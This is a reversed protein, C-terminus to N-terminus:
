PHCRFAALTKGGDGARRWADTAAVSNAERRWRKGKQEGSANTGTIALPVAQTEESICRRSRRQAQL